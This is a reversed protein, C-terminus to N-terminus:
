PKGEHAYFFALARAQDLTVAPYVGLGRSTPKGDKKLCRRQWNKLLGGKSEKVLLSLGYSGRGGDGYRGPTTVGRAFADTLRKTTM